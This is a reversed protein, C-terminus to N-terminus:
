VASAIEELALLQPFVANIKQPRSIVKRECLPFLSATVHWM